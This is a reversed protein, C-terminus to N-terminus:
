KIKKALEKKKIKTLKLYPKISQLTKTGKLIIIQETTGGERIIKIFRNHRFYYPTIEGKFWKKFHYNLKNTTNTYKQQNRTTNTRYNPFLYMNEPRAIAYDYIEKIHRARYRLTINKITIHSQGEKKIDKATLGLTQKPTMGTYYLIIILARAEKQHKTKIKKIKKTLEEIDITTTEQKQLYEQYKKNKILAM